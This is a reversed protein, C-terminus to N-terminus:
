RNLNNKFTELLNLYSMYTPPTFNNTKIEIQDNNLEM